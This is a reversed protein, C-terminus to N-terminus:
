GGLVFVGPGDLGANKEVLANSRANPRGSKSAARSAVKSSKTRSTSSTRAAMKRAVRSIRDAVRRDGGLGNRVVHERLEDPKLPKRALEALLRRKPTIHVGASRASTCALLPVPV